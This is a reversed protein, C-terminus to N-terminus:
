LAFIFLNYNVYLLPKAYLLVCTMGHALTHMDLTWYLMINEIAVMTQNNFLINISVTKKNIGDSQDRGTVSDSFQEMLKMLGVDKM